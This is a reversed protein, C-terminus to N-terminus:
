CKHLNLLQSIEECLEPSITHSRGTVTTLEMASIKRLVNKLPVWVKDSSSKKFSTRPGPPHYFHVNVDNHEVSIDIVEGIWWQGEYICSTTVQLCCTCM